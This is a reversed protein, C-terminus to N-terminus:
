FIYHVCGMSTHIQRVCYLLVGTNNSMTEKNTFHESKLLRSCTYVSIPGTDELNDVLLIGNDIEQDCVCSVMGTTSLAM